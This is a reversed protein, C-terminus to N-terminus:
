REGCSSVGHPDRGEGPAPSAIRWKEGLEVVRRSPDIDAPLRGRHQSWATPTRVGHAAKVKVGPGVSARMLRLDEPTESAPEYYFSSRNLGLLACQRRVSLEPHGVDILPRKREASPPM